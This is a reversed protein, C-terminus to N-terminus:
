YIFFRNTTVAEATEQVALATVVFGLDADVSVAFTEPIIQNFLYESHVRSERLRACASVKTTKLYIVPQRM